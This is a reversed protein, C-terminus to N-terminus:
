PHHRDGKRRLAEAVRKYRRATTRTAPRRFRRTLGLWVGVALVLAVGAGALLPTRSIEALAPGAAFKLDAGRELFWHWATHGVLVSILIVGIRHAARGRLVLALVPLAVSLAFLQGLEVGVNFAGLSLLLHAGAFQLEQQLAFSFGFGHVLGFGAAVAWRWRLDVRGARARWLIVANEVAMFLISAAIAVEILPAFWPQPPVAGLAAAILTITHGATFATIVGALPWFQRLRFPAVLCLLFLLHDIGDLIHAFGLKVFVWGAQYWRPDLALAGSGGHVRYARVPGDPPLFRVSATLRGALGPAVRVDLSFASGEDRIPYVLYADLYGQNWFVNTTEPLPPGTIHAVATEFTDFARESPQSIRARAASPQLRRGEEYLALERAILGTAKELSPGLRALDLYGPGRKPLNQSTLLILPLRVAFHLREGEPKVFAQIPIEDPIDHAAARALLSAAGFVALALVVSGLGFTPRRSRM